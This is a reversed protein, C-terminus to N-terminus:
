QGVTRQGVGLQHESLWKVIDLHGERAAWDMAFTTCGETRHASLWKVVEIHGNKAAYDMLKGMDVSGHGVRYTHLWTLVAVDDSQWRNELHLRRLVIKKVYERRVLCATKAADPTDLCLIIKDILEAPLYM